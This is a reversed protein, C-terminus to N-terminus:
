STASRRAHHRPRGVIGRWNALEVDVGQEKLTPIDMGPVRKPRPSPSRACRAAVQHAARIRRLGLHGRDRPRRHDGRGSGRRGQVSRLEGEAADVGVAKAILGALIHDTGGASGGGWSVSGPNAKFKDLLEKLTKPGNAPVVIM